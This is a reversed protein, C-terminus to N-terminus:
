PVSKDQGINGSSGGGIGHKRAIYEPVGISEYAKHKFANKAERTAEENELKGAGRQVDLKIQNATRRKYM